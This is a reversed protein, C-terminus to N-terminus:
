GERLKQLRTNTEAIAQRAHKGNEDSWSAGLGKAYFELAESQSQIIDILESIIAFSKTHQYSAIDLLADHAEVKEIHSMKDYSAWAYNEDKIMKNLTTDDSDFETLVRKLEAFDPNNM